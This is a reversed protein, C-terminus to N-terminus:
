PILFFNVHFQFYRDVNLYSILSFQFIRVSFHLVTVCHYAPLPCVGQHIRESLFEMAM